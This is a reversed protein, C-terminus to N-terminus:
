EVGFPADALAERDAVEHSAQPIRADRRGTRRGEVEFGLLPEGGGEVTLQDLGHAGGTGALEAEHRFTLVVLAEAVGCSGGHGPPLLVPSSTLPRLRALKSTLGTAAM